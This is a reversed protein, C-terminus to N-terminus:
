ASSPPLIPSNSTPNPPCPPRSPHSPHIVTLYSEHYLCDLHHSLTPALTCATHLNWPFLLSRSSKNRHECGRHKHKLVSYTAQVLRPVIIYRWAVKSPYSEQQKAVVACRWIWCVKRFCRPGDRLCPRRDTYMGEHLEATGSDLLIRSEMCIGLRSRGRPFGWGM